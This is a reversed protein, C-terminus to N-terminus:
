KGLFYGSQPFASRSAATDLVWTIPKGKRGKGMLDCKKQLFHSRIWLAFSHSSEEALGCWLTEPFSPRPMRLARAPAKDKVWSASTNSLLMWEELEAPQRAAASGVISSLQLTPDEQRLKKVRTLSSYLFFPRTPHSVCEVASHLLQVQPPSLPQSGHVGRASLLHLPAIVATPALKPLDLTSHPPRAAQCHFNRSM